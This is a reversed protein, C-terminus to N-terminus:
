RRSRFLFALNVVFSHIKTSKKRGVMKRLLLRVDHSTLTCGRKARPFNCAFAHPKTVPTRDTVIWFFTASSQHHVARGVCFHGCAAIKPVTNHIHAGRLWRSGKARNKFAINLANKLEQVRNLNAILGAV